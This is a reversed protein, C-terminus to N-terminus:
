CTTLLAAVSESKRVGGVVSRLPTYASTVIKEVIKVAGMTEFRAAATAHHQV